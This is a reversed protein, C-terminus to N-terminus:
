RFRGVLKKAYYKICKKTQAVKANLWSSRLRPLLDEREVLANPEKEYYLKREDVIRDEWSTPIRTQINEINAKSNKLVVENLWDNKAEHKFCTGLLIVEKRNEIRKQIQEPSRFQYHKLRIRKPYAPYIKLPWAADEDWIMFKSYRIFRMESWNNIYYRYRKELPVETNYLDPNSRYASLDSKTFYYQYSSSWVSRYPGEVNELFQKPNDMYIEDADLRCWWDGKESKERFHGYTHGRLGDHFMCDMRKFPIIQKYENSLQRVKEWTGDTSGNDLVYIFDGWEIAALLSQEIIDIENKVVMNCHIKM